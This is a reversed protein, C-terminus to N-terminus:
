PKFIGKNRAMNKLIALLRDTREENKGAPYKEVFKDIKIRHRSLQKQTFGFGVFARFVSCGVHVAWGEYYAEVLFINKKDFLRDKTIRDIVTLRNPRFLAEVNFDNEKRIASLLLAGNVCVGCPEKLNRLTRQASTSSDLELEKPLTVYSHDGTVYLGAKLQAIADKIIAIRRQVKTLKKKTQTKM